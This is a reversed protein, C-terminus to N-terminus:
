IVGINNKMTTNEVSTTIFDTNLNILERNEVGGFFISILLHSSKLKPREIEYM